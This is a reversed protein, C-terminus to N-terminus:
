VAIAADGGAGAVIGAVEVGFNRRRHNEHRALVADAVVLQFVRGLGVAGGAGVPQQMGHPRQGANCRLLCPRWHNSPRSASDRLNTVALLAQSSAIWAKETARSQKAESAIVNLPQHFRALEDNRPASAVFCDEEAFQM